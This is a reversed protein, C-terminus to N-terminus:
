ACYRLVTNSQLETPQICHANNRLVHFCCDLLPVAPLTPLTPSLVVKLKVVDDKDTLTPRTCVIIHLQETPSTVLHLTCM